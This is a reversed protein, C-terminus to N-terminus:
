KEVGHTEGVAEYKSCLIAHNPNLIPIASLIPYLNFCEPCFYAEKYHHLRTGCSPCAYANEHQEKGESSVEKEIITIATNNNYTTIRFLEHKVVNLNLEEMSKKLNDIYCLEKIRKKTEENGMDYSPELMVVYKRAVRLLEKLAEKERGTNSELCHIILVVDFANDEYPLSFMDGMVFDINVKKIDAFKQAYLLRSLSLELASFQIGENANLVIDCLSTAEGAGVELVSKPNLENIEQAIYKCWLETFEKCTMSVSEGDLIYLDKVITEDFYKKTYEGAQYDYSYLISNIDNEKTNNEDRFYKQINIGQNYLEKIKM